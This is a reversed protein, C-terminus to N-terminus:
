GLVPGNGDAKFSLLSQDLQGNSREATCRRPGSQEEWTAAAEPQPVSAAACMIARGADCLGLSKYIPPHYM